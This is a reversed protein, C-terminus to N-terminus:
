TIPIKENKNNIYIIIKTSNNKILIINKNTNSNDVWTKTLNTSM